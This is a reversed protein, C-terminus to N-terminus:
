ACAHQKSGCSATLIRANHEKLDMALRDIEGLSLISKGVFYSGLRDQLSRQHLLLTNVQFVSLLGLEVAKEGFLRPRGCPESVRDVAAADLLGWQVAIDGITPRQKRQWVLAQILAGFTIKGRYYLYQGFQLRRRPVEGHYHIDDGKHNPSSSTRAPEPKRRRARRDRAYDVPVCDPRWAGEERQKFFLNLVDYAHIIERFLANQKQQVHAPDAAFLDPHIEKAKKRYASKVGSLQISYYLFDRSINVDEGFLTHCAQILETESIVNM